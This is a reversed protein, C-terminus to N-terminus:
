KEAGNVRRKTVLLVVAAAALVAGAVYFITTGIGGTEPLEVGTLNMVDTKFVGTLAGGEAKEVTFTAGETIDTIELNTLQPDNVNNEDYSAKVTFKIPDIGNYGAPVKTEELLYVGSDLGEFNFESIDEGPGIVKRSVWKGEGDEVNKSETGEPVEYAAPYLKWLAFQAGELPEGAGDVKDVDYDFTFVIAKDPTTSGTGTGHPNNSFDMHSVNPNGETGVVAGANLTSSYNVLIASDATADPAAKKLDAIVIEFTCGDAGPANVTYDTGNDLVKGDVTVVVTAPLFSLGKGQEDHFTIAYADYDGYNDPLTGTILFPVNDGIDWDASEQWGTNDGGTTDNRDQVEKKSTPVDTKYKIEVKETVQLVVDNYAASGKLAEPDTTDQILYYGNVLEASPAAVPVGAGNLSDFAAEAVQRALDGDDKRANLAEVVTQPDAADCAGFVDSNLEKLSAVFADPDIDAGWKVSALQNDQESNQTGTFIQYATFTHGALDPDITVTAALAATGLSLVLALALLISFLKKISRM